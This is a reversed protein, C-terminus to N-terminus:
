VVKDVSAMVGKALALLATPKKASMGPVCFNAVSALASTSM